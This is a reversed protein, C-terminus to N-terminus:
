LIREMRTLRSIPLLGIYRSDFGRPHRSGVYIMGSPIIGSWKMHELKLGNHAFPLTVGLFEQNCFYHGDSRGPAQRSPTEYMTLRDGPMCLAHKTVSIPSQGAIPHQLMYMVYDGRSIPGPSKRVAYADISPSMVLTIQPLFWAACLSLPLIILMAALLRAPRAPLTPGPSGLESAAALLLRGFRPGLGAVVKALVLLLKLM